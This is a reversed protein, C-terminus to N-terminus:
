SVCARIQEGSPQEVVGREAEEFHRFKPVLIPFVTLDSVLAPFGISTSAAHTDRSLVLLSTVGVM